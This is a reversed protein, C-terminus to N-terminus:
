QDRYDAPVRDAEVLSQLWGDFSDSVIAISGWDPNLPRENLYIVGISGRVKGAVGLLVHFAPTTAISIMEAPLGFDDSERHRLTEWLSFLSEPECPECASLFGLLALWEPKELEPGTYGAPWTVPFFRYRPLWGGGDHLLYNRYGDPLPSGIKAEFAALADDRAVGYRVDFELDRVSM